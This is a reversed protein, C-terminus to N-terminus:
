CLCPYKKFDFSISSNRHLFILTNDKMHKCNHQAHMSCLKCFTFYTYSLLDMVNKDTQSVPIQIESTEIEGITTQLLGVWHADQPAEKRIKVKISLYKNTKVNRATLLDVSM